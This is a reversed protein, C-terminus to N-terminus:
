QPLLASPIILGSVSSDCWDLYKIVLVEPIHSCCPHPFKPQFGTEQLFGVDAGSKVSMVPQLVKQPQLLKQEAKNKTFHKHRHFAALRVSRKQGDESGGDQNRRSSDPDPGKSGRAPTKM